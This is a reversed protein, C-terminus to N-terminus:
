SELSQPQLHGVRDLQGISQLTEELFYQRINCNTELYALRSTSIIRQMELSRHFIKRSIM